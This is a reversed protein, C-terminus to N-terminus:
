TGVRALAGAHPASGLWDRLRERLVPMLARASLAHYDRVRERLIYVCDISDLQISCCLTRGSGSLDMELMLAGDRQRLSHTMGVGLMALEDAWIALHDLLRDLERSRGLRELLSVAEVRSLARALFSHQM